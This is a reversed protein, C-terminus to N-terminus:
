RAIAARVASVVADARRTIDDVQAAAALLERRGATEAMAAVNVEINVRATVAAARAAEAAAAVDTIVNHNGIPRLEEALAVLRGAVAVVRAPPQAAAELARAIAASRTAKQQEDARPLQYAAAVAGFAAADEEALGAAARMLQDSEACIRGIAAQHAAFKEGSSYRAVMATLAAAQAAHLAACAGGGPAPVRASLEDLYADISLHRM